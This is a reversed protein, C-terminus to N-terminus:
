RLEEPLFRGYESKFQQAELVQNIRNTETNVIFGLYRTPEGCPANVTSQAVAYLIKGDTSWGVGYVNPNDSSSSCRNRGRYIKVIAEDLSDEEKVTSALVHFLRLRSSLGSGSGDNLFFETSSPSWSIVAPLGLQQNGILALPRRGSVIHFRGAPGAQFIISGNPSAVTNSCDAYLQRLEKSWGPAESSPCTRAEGQIPILLTTYFLLFMLVRSTM